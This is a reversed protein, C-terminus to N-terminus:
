QFARHHCIQLFQKDVQIYVTQKSQDAVGFIVLLSFLEFYDCYEQAYVFLNLHAHITILELSSLSMSAM